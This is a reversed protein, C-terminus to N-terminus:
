TVAVGIVDSNAPNFSTLAAKRRGGKAYLEPM